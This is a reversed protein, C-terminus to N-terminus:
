DSSADDSIIGRLNEWDSVRRPGKPAGNTQDSDSDSNLSRHYTPLPPERDEQRAFAVRRKPRGESNIINSVDLEALERAEEKKLRVKKCKEISPQGHVGLDELEKKLVAVMSRVSCCDGLLKKYNRREGCLSIYRKLRVVAKNDDKQIKVADHKDKKTSKNKESDGNKGKKKDVKTQHEQEDESPLSSSDSDAQNERKEAVTNDEKESEESSLSSDSKNSNNKDDDDSQDTKMKEMKTKIETEGDESDKDCMGNTKESSKTMKEETDGSGTKSQEEEESEASEAIQNEKDESESETSVCSRPKKGKSALENEDESTTDNERERKRKNQVDEAESESSSRHDEQMKQLEQHVVQKLLSQVSSSLSDGGVNALYRRKLIGLTLSSLDQEARLQGCVFRRISKVESEPVM